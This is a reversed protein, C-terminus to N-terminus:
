HGSKTECYILTIRFKEDCRPHTAPPTLAARNVAILETATLTAITAPTAHILDTGILLPAGMICWIAFHSQGEVVSVGVNGVQLM